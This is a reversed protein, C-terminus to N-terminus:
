LKGRTKLENKAYKLRKNEESTNLLELTSLAKVIAKLEWTAKNKM